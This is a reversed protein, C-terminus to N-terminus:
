ENEKNNELGSWSSLWWDNLTGGWNRPKYLQRAQRASLNLENQHTTLYDIWIDPNLGKKQLEYAIALPSRKENTKEKLLPALKKSIKLTEDDVYEQPVLPKAYGEKFDIGKKIVPIKSIERNLDPLTYIPEAQSYANMPSLNNKSILSDAFNETDNRADFEKQLSKINNLTTKAPRATVGWSGIDEVSQYQRSIEDLEKATEKVAQQETLGGGGKSKPKTAQIAKDEVLSYVNGPIKGGLKEFQKQLRSVVNDQITSLNQHQTQKASAIDSRRANSSAVFDIAKQPDHGFLGPNENFRQGAEALEQEKTPPIYGEQVDEFQNANTLSPIDSGATQKENPTTPFPSPKPQNQSNQQTQLDRLANGRTQQKALEGFSQIMQPTVGPISSLRTLQQLPSLNASEKEFNQLGQSLRYREVEKPLQESLGQGIGKGIRGFLGGQKEIVQVM